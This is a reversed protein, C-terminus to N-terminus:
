LKFIMFKIKRRHSETTSHNEINKLKNEAKRKKEKREKKKKKKTSSERKNRLLKKKGKKLNKVINHLGM